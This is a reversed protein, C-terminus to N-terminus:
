GKLEPLAEFLKETGGEIAFMNNYDNNKLYKVVQEARAGNDCILICIIYTPAMDINEPIDYMSIQFANKIGGTEKIENEERIDVFIYDQKDYWENTFEDISIVEQEENTKYFSMDGALRKGRYMKTALTAM